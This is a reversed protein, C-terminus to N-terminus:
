RGNTDPQHMMLSEIVRAVSDPATKEVLYAHPGNPDDRWGNSGDPQSVFYGRQVRYFPAPSMVAALTATQDWSMRGASDEEALPMSIAFAHRVPSEAPGDAVLRLGTKVRQGIEFGSFLIPTPWHEIAERAATSDTYVNFERGEPFRGAMAVWQKVKQKVLAEGPLPSLSDPASQLLDRLNTLFGVSVIIVSTDPQASLVRRYLTVADSVEGTSAVAHPYHAVLTDPWYQVAGLNVSGAPPAGIPLDPRGFYTNLVDISPAVLPHRNSAVTALIRVRGQDALAHLLALAGVDDYDPGFDTDFIVSVPAATDSAVDPTTARDQPKGSPQCAIGALVGSLALWYPM